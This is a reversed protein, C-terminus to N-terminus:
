LLGFWFHFACLIFEILERMMIVLMSANKLIITCRVPLSPGFRVIPASFFPVRQCMPLASVCLDDDMM